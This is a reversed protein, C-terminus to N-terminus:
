IRMGARDPARCILRRLGRLGGAWGAVWGGSILWRAYRPGGAKPRTRLTGEDARPPRPERRGWPAHCVGRALHSTRASGGQRRAGPGPRTMRGCATRGPGIKAPACRPSHPDALRDAPRGHRGPTDRRDRGRDVPRDGRPYPGRPRPRDTLPAPGTRTRHPRGRAAPSQPGRPHPPLLPRGLLEAPGRTVLALAAAAGGTAAALAAAWVQRGPTHARIPTVLVEIAGGCTLGVAFADEPGPGFRELVVQGDQLAQAYLDHVAAEVCGGSVSGIVTGRSDVALAAGPGRPASGDVAVVTAVAVDRGEALWRHLADALDLM